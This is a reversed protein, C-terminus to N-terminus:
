PMIGMVEHMISTVAEPRIIATATLLVAFTAVITGGIRVAVWSRGSLHEALTM